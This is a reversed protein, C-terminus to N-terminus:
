KVSILQGQGARAYLQMTRRALTATDAQRARLRVIVADLIV